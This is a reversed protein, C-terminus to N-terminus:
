MRLILKQRVLVLKLPNQQLLLVSQSPYITRQIRMVKRRVVNFWRWMFLVSFLWQINGRELNLKRRDMHRSYVLNLVIRQLAYRNLLVSLARVINNQSANEYASNSHFRLFLRGKTTIPTCTLTLLMFTNLTTMSICGFTRNASKDLYM